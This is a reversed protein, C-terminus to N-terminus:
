PPPGGHGGGSRLPHGTPRPGLGDTHPPPRAKGPRPSAPGAAPRPGLAPAQRPRTPAGYRRRLPLPEGPAPAPLLTHARGARSAGDPQQSLGSPFRPRRLPPFRVEAQTRAAATWLRTPPPPQCLAAESKFGREEVQQPTTSLTAAGGACYQM